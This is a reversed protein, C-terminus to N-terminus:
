ERALPMVNDDPKRDILMSRPDIGAQVADGHVKMTVDVREGTVHVKQVALVNRQGDLVGVEIFDDLQVESEAGLEDARLKKAFAEIYV